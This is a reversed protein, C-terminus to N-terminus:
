EGKRYETLIRQSQKNKFVKLVLCIFHFIKFVGIITGELEEL